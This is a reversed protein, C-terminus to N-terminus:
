FSLMLSWYMKDNVKCGFVVISVFYSFNYGWQMMVSIFPSRKMFFPIFYTIKCSSFFTVYIKKVKWKHRQCSVIFINPHDKVFDCLLSARKFLKNLTYGGLECLERTSKVAFGSLLSQRCKAGHLFPGLGFLWVRNFFAM